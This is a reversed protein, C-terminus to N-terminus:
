RSSTGGIKVITVGEASNAVFPGDGDFLIRYGSEAVARGSPVVGLCSARGDRDTTSACISSGASVFRLRKGALPAGTEAHRLNGAVRLLCPSETWSHCLAEVHLRSPAPLMDAHACAALTLTWLGVLVQWRNSMIWAFQLGLVM